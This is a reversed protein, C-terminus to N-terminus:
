KKAPEAKALTLTRNGKDDETLVGSLVWMQEAKAAVEKLLDGEKSTELAIDGVYWKKDKEVAKSTLKAEVKDLKYNGLVKKIDAMKTKPLEDFNVLFVGIPKVFDDQSAGKAGSLRKM